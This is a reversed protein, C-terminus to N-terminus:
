IASQDTGNQSVRQHYNRVSAIFVDELSPEIVAVHGTQINNRKLLSLIKRQQKEVENATIHLLAGFLEADAFQVEDRALAM